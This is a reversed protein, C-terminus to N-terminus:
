LEESGKKETSSPPDGEFVSKKVVNKCCLPFKDESSVAEINFGTVTVVDVTVVDVTVDDVTVDVVTFDVVAVGAFDDFLSM